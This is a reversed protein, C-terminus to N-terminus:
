KTELRQLLDVTAAVVRAQQEARSIDAEGDGSQAGYWGFQAHNAGELVVWRTGPPLLSRSAEIKGPSALGDRTGSISVVELGFASLDDSPDPYAAWLALGLVLNPHGHAFRAAMAGGLSHGGVAWRGVDPYSAIVEAAREADLVALNLPMPVIVVQYGAAAIERAAPAYAVPDVKGGPYLILGARSEAGAPRFVLWRATSVEVAGESVLASRVEPMAGAPILAVAGAVALVAVLALLALLSRGRGRRARVTEGEQM